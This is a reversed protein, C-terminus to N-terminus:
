TNSAATLSLHYESGDGRYGLDGYARHVRSSSQDRWGHDNIADLAVYGAVNAAQHGAEVGVGLLGFSGGRLEVETGPHTFGNEMEISVAGGIANLGYLPSSPLLVSRAIAAEPIFDWNVTDGFAENIRIGNQYVALSETTGPIPSALFGRFEFDRQYPNGAQDQISVGPMGSSFASMLDPSRRHDFEDGSLVQVNSPIKDRDIGTGVLPTVGVVEATPLASASDAAQAHVLTAAAAGCLGLLFRHRLRIALAM